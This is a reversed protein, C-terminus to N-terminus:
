DLDPLTIRQIVLPRVTRVGPVRALDATLGAQVGADGNSVHFDAAGALPTAAQGCATGLSGDLVGTAVWTSVGLAISAVVLATRTWRSRWYRLSLTRHLSLM